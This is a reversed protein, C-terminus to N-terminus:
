REAKWRRKEEQRVAKKGAKRVRPPNCCSCGLHRGCYAKPARSNKLMPARVRSM